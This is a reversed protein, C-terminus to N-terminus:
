QDSVPEKTSWRHLISPLSEHKGNKPFASMSALVPINLHTRIEDPTRLTSDLYEATLGIGVSMLTALLAGILVTLYRQSSPLPPATPAEAIAVNIIRKRDLAESIRAEEAKQLYLMYNDEGVKVTRLLDEQVIEKQGLIRANERYQSVTRADEAAKGQLGALDTKAKALESRVWAYTPNQDTTEDRLKSQEAAALTARTQAIEADVERVLRYGPEFKELLETRKLELNLLTSRLGSLLIADDTNRTMTVMRPPTSAAQAELTKIRQQTENIAQQTQWQAAEFDSLRQLVAEKEQRASVTGGHTFDVLQAEADALGTRYRETEQQFFDVTGPTRHVAVHKELYLDGLTSLVRAALGPDTSEYDVGILNTKKIVEVRLRKDLARVAREIAIANDPSEQKELAKPLTSGTKRELGCALVVKELLDKSKLLEVESNLDEETVAAAMPLINSAQPSVVPDIRESKVLIKMRAQYRSPQLLAVITAGFFVGVFSLAILKKHRFVVAVFDRISSPYGSSAEHNGLHQIEM